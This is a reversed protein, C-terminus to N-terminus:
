SAEAKPTDRISQNTRSEHNEQSIKPDIHDGQLMEKSATDGIEREMAAGEMALASTCVMAILLLRSASMM